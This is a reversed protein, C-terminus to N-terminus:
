AQLLDIAFRCNIFSLFHVNLMVKAVKETIQMHDGAIVVKTKADALTLPIIAAAEMTQFFFFVEFLDLFKAIGLM